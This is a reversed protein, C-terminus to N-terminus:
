PWGGYNSRKGKGKGKSKGYSRDVATAAQTRCWAVTFAGPNLGNVKRRATMGSRRGITGSLPDDTTTTIVTSRMTSATTSAMPWAAITPDKGLSTKTARPWKAKRRAKTIGDWAEPILWGTSRKTAPHMMMAMAMMTPMRTTTIIAPPKLRHM